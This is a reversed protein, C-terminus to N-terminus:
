PIKDKEASLTDGPKLQCDFRELFPLFGEQRGIQLGWEPITGRGSGTFAEPRYAGPASPVSRLNQLKSFALGDPAYQLTRAIDKPGINVMATVGTGSPWVLVEHGGDIVPNAPHKV